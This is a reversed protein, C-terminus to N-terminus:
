DRKQVSKAIADDSNACTARTTPMMLPTISAGHHARARDLQYRTSKSKQIHTYVSFLHVFIRVFFVAINCLATERQAKGLVEVPRCGQDPFVRAFVISFPAVAHKAKNLIAQMAHHECGALSFRPDDTQTSSVFSLHLSIFFRDLGSVVLRSLGSHVMSIIALAWGAFSTRGFIKPARVAAVMSLGRPRGLDGSDFTAILRLNDGSVSARQFAVPGPQCVRMALTRRSDTYTPILLASFEVARLILARRNARANFRNLFERMANPTLM